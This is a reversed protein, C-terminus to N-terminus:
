LSNLSLISIFNKDLDIGKAKFYKPIVFQESDGEVVVVLKSYYIFPNKRFDDKVFKFKDIEGKPVNIKNVVAIYNNKLLIFEM